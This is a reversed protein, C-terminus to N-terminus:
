RTLSEATAAVAGSAAQATLLKKVGEVDDWDLDVALQGAKASNQAKIVNAHGETIPAFSGTRYAAAIANNYGSPMPGNGAGNSYEHYTSEDGNVILYIIADKVGGTGKRTYYFGSNGAMDDEEQPTPTPTPPNIPKGGGGAPSGGVYAMFDVTPTLGPVPAKRDVWLSTHVHWGVGFMPVDYGNASCGSLGLDDGQHVRSGNRINVELMHLLRVWTTGDDGQLFVVRGMAGTNSLKVGRVTGDMPSVLQTGKPIAFDTGAETSPPKRNRHCQWSCPIDVGHGTFPLILSQVM